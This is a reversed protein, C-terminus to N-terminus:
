GTPTTRAAGRGRPPLVRGAEPREQHRRLRQAHEGVDPGAPVAGRPRGRGRVQRAGAPPDPRAHGLGRAPVRRHHRGRGAARLDRRRRAARPRHRRRHRPDGRHARAHRHHRRPQAAGPLGDEAPRPRRRRADRVPHRGARGRHAAGAEPKRQIPLYDTLPDRTIVVAAAHIGDQRRLGELGKAVDIVEKAEPDTAYMDRLDGAMKYGDAFKPRSSSAPGCRRTAAWSWRRCPRPWRTASSTPTARAGPGRRAGRGPGQHHLVHRDPRGPRPRVERGRLPDDRGPLPLRLGHRHRADLHPEPQPLARVAPRVQHPRPRHDAAHVGGRVGGGLWPRARRPHRQSPRPAILDWVILFYSSFGMDDIVKLEYTLREVVDDPLTAGGSRPGRSPSTSCTTPTTPSRGRPAPLEPLQSRASSSTSTPGSPSGSRTTAPRRRGRAFLQRMEDATKLYHQDGHFKFRDPDSMQSGTQVCLLADHSTADHQARLPQRQHRAAPAAAQKALDCCCRTPATSSPSATTRSSSSSTTAASSTTCGAPRSARRRRLGRNMMSQLVHGGLCGTTVILGESHEALLEWDVKPKRYYGELFARSSLQILNRYGVENEVLTTLHYYPKKGGEADGGTDDIRGGRLRWGSPATTTPWTCSAASSRSSAGTGAAKYFDLVGYMNGHDTIGIAPQGDAAAAAVVDGVRAAGDLM